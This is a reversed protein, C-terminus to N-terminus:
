EIKRWHNLPRYKMLKSAYKNGHHDSAWIDDWGIEEKPAPVTSPEPYWTHDEPEDASYRSTASIYQVGNTQDVSHTYKMEKGCYPCGSTPDEWCGQTFYHGDECLFEDYGEYSM